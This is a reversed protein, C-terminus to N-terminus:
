DDADRKVGEYCYGDEPVLYSNLGCGYDHGYRCEKCRVVEVADITPMKEIEEVVKCYAFFAVIRQEGILASFTTVDIDKLKELLADADIPRM